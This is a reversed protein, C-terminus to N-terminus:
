MGARSQPRQPSRRRTSLRLPGTTRALAGTATFGGRILGRFVPLGNIRQEFEVWAMNGSPNQYDAVLNLNGVQEQSLGFADAYTSLFARMANARDVTPGTLFGTGPQVSVVEPTSLEASDIVDVKFDAQLRALGAMRARALASVAPSLSRAGFRQMYADSAPDKATRIDFNEEWRGSNQLARQASTLLTTLMAVALALSVLVFKRSATLTCLHM